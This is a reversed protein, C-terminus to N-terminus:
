LGFNDIDLTEKNAAAIIENLQAKNIYRNIWTRKGFEEEIPTNTFDEYYGEIWIDNCEFCAYIKVSFYDFKRTFSNSCDTSQINNIVGLKKCKACTTEM